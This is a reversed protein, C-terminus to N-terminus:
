KSLKNIIESHHQNNAYVQRKFRFAAHKVLLLFASGGTRPPTHEILYYANLAMEHVGLM